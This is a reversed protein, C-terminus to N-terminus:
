ILEYYDIKKELGHVNVELRYLEKSLILYLMIPNMYVFTGIFAHMIKDSYLDNHKKCKKYEYLDAGRKAGLMSWGFAIHMGYRQIRNM